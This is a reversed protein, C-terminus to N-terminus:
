AVGGGANIEFNRLYDEYLMTVQVTSPLEAVVQQYQASSDTVVFIHALDERDRVEDTFEQWHAVDFLVAYRAGAPAAYKKVQKTIMEGAGGAKLWLLPAIAEFAKGRAVDNRDLYTFELFQVNESLGASMSTGDANRLRESVPMGAATVGLVAAEIRPKTARHYIGRAEWEDDGPLVGSELLEERDEPDLENNTVLISRRRGGDEANVMMTAHTTTGSGGFFDLVLAQPDDKTLMAITDRVAYVSKPFTFKRGGLLSTVVDTGGVGADHSTRHWVTKVRRGASEPDAYVVDVVNRVEDFEEIELVGASIQEQPTKSLYSIGWTNRKQDYSGVAVYGREILDRLTAPGVSWRGLTGDNRVPWVPTLGDVKTEFDPEVDLPLPEGAGLVAGREEDILVPYFMDKRDQRRAASGSRLLGKWRPRKKKGESADAKELDNAGLTLLDDGWGSVGADGFFCFYAYEEVRSFRKVGPRTVGKPNNVITVLTIDAEPFMQDLLVGLRSVEHEDITVVMVADRKLLGRVLRLRKEMFSLWKSHRYSDKADVYDNNYTWDRAGSNYPPDLYCVSVQGACVYQLAELVHYNEGNIVVHDPKDGGRNISGLSIFGPYVPEGFARVAVLEDVPRVSEEGDPAVLHAEGKRVRRVTWTTDGGAREQVKVGRRIPHNPLRVNEPVHREFVLGFDKTERLRSVEAALAARLTEDEIRGLLGDLINTM